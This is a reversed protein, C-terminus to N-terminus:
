APSTRPWRALRRGAAPLRAAPRAPLRGAEPARQRPQARHRRAGVFTPPRRARRWWGVAARAARRAAGQGVEAEAPRRAPLARPRPGRRAALQRRAGAGGALEALQFSGGGLDLSVADRVDLGNAVALAGIRAEEEGDLVRLEVGLERAAAVFEPRQARRARRQHRHGRRRRRRRPAYSAFTRLAALGRAFPKPQLAGGDDLGVVAAGGGAARRAPALQPRSPVRPRDAQRHELRRRHDRHAARRGTRESPTACSASARAHRDGDVLVADFRV